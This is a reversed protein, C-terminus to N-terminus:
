DDSKRLTAMLRDGNPDDFAGLISAKAASGVEWVGLAHELAARREDRQGAVLHVVGSVYVCRQCLYDIDGGLIHSEECAPDTDCKGMVGRALRHDKTTPNTM